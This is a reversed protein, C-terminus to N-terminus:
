RPMVVVFPRGRLHVEVTVDTATATAKAGPLEAKAARGDPLAAALSSAALRARLNAQAHAARRFATIATDTQLLAVGIALTGMFSVISVFTFGRRRM